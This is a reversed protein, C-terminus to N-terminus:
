KEKGLYERWTEPLWANKIGKFMPAIQDHTYGALGTGIPTIYFCYDKNVLSWNIFGTVYTQIIDLPLTRIRTDRTPIAYSQGQLGYAQGYVANYKLLAYRAAGKGHRGALNSGFVFLMKDPLTFKVEPDYYSNEENPPMLLHM